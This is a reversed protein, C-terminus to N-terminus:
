IHILSLQGRTDGVTNGAECLGTQMELVIEDLSAGTIWEALTRKQADELAAGQLRMLGDDLAAYISGPTFRAMDARSPTHAATAPDPAEHCAACYSAFLQEADQATAPMVSGAALLLSALRWSCLRNMTSM